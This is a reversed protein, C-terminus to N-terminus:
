YVMSAAVDDSTREEGPGAKAFKVFLYLAAVALVAYILTFGLLTLWIWAAPVTPSNAAETKLLEYAIWPQRGMETFIWGMANGFFAAPIGVWLAAKLFWRRDLLQDKRAFWIGLGGLLILLMGTAVMLRFSWYTVFLNPIYDGEGHREVMEAQLDNIGKVECDLNNCSLLSLVRPISVNLANRSNTKDGVAFLSFAAPQETDWLAEAAAMKMPQVEVMVQGQWHGTFAIGLSSVLLAAGAIASSKRMVEAHKGRALHWAAVGLIIASATAVGVFITHPFHAWLVKSTVIEGFSDMEARGTASNIVYGTPYQMWANALLIWFSSAATGFAVMWITLLHLKPSLKKWGFIWLGLFTSEIFFALLAEIALPAGFIDGVFRSYTSWNMGFQFEQVIGTVVGIAFNILMLKGWFKTMRLYEPKKTRYWATQMIAVLLTIGITTPVFLWHYVTTIGFQWRALLVEAM